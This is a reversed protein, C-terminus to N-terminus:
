PGGVSKGDGPPSPKAGAARKRRRPKPKVVFEYDPWRAALKAAFERAFRERAEASPGTPPVSRPRPEDAM